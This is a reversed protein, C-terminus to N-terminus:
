VFKVRKIFERFGKDISAQSCIDHKLFIVHTLPVDDKQLPQRNIIAKKDLVFEIKSILNGLEIIKDGGLNFVEYDNLDANM